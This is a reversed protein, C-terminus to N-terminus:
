WDDDNDSNKFNDTINKHLKTGIMVKIKRIKNKFILM